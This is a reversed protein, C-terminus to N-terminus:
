KKRRAVITIEMVKQVLRGRHQDRCLKAFDVHDKPVSFEASPKKLNTFNLLYTLMTAYRCLEQVQVHFMESFMYIMKIFM